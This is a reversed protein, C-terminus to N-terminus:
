DDILEEEYSYYDNFEVNLMNAIQLFVERRGEMRAMELADTHFNTRTANCFRRLDAMVAKGMENNLCHRYALQKRKLLKRPDYNEIM